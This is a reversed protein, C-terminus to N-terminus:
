RRWRARTSTSAAAMPMKGAQSPLGAFRSIRSARCCRSFGPSIQQRCDNRQKYRADLTVSKSIRLTNSLVITTCNPSCSIAARSCQQWSNMLIRATTPGPSPLRSIRTTAARYRGGRYCGRPHYLLSDRGPRLDADLQLGREDPQQQHPHSREPANILRFLLPTSPNNTAHAHNTFTLTTGEAVTQPLIPDIVIQSVPAVNNTVTVTFSTGSTNTRAQVSQRQRHLNRGPSACADLQLHKPGTSRYETPALSASTAPNSNLSWNLQSNAGTTNTISSKFQSQRAQWSMPTTSPALRLSRLTQECQRGSWSGALCLCCQFPFQGARAEAAPPSGRREPTAQGSNIM